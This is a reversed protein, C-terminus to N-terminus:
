TRTTLFKIIVIGILLCWFTVIFLRFPLPLLSFLSQFFQLANLFPIM